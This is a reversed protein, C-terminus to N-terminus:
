TRARRAKVSPTPFSSGHSTAGMGAHATTMELSGAAVCQAQTGDKGEHFDGAIPISALGRWHNEKAAVARLSGPEVSHM